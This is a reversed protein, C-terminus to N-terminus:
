MRFEARYKGVSIYDSRYYNKRTMERGIMLYRIKNAINSPMDKM